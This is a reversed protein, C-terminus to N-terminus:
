RHSSASQDIGNKELLKQVGRHTLGYHILIQRETDTKVPCVPCQYQGHGHEAGTDLGLQSLLEDHFHQTAYHKYLDFQWRFTESHCISCPYFVQRGSSTLSLSGQFIFYKSNSIYFLIVLNILSTKQKRRCYFYKEALKLM